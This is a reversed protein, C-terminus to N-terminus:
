RRGARAPRPRISSLPSQDNVSLNTTSGALRYTLTRALVPLPANESASGSVAIAAAKAARAGAEGLSWIVM